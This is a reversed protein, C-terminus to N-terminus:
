RFTHSVSHFVTWHEFFVPHAGVRAAGSVSVRSVSLVMGHRHAYSPQKAHLQAEQACHAGHLRLGIPGAQPSRTLLVSLPKTGPLFRHTIGVKM